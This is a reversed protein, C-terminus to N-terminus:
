VAGKPAERAKKLGEATLIDILYDEPYWDLRDQLTKKLISSKDFLDHMYSTWEKFTKPPMTSKQHYVDDFLDCILEALIDAKIRQKEDDPLGKGEYFVGRLEWNDFFFRDLNLMESYVAQYTQNQVTKRLDQIQFIVVGIALFAAIASVWEAVSGVDPKPAADLLLM